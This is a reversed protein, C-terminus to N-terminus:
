NKKSKVYQKIENSVINGCISELYKIKKVIQEDTSEKDNTLERYEEVSITVKQEELM